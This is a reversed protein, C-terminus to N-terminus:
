CVLGRVIMRKTMRWVICVSREGKKGEGEDSGWQQRRGGGNDYGKGMVGVSPWLELISFRTM